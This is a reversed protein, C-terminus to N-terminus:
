IELDIKSLSFQATACKKRYEQIEKEIQRKLQKVYRLNRFIIVSLIFYKVSSFTSFLMTMLSIISNYDTMLVFNEQGCLLVRLPWHTSCYRNYCHDM